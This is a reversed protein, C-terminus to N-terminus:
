FIYRSDGLSDMTIHYEFCLLVLIHKQRKCVRFKIIKHFIGAMIGAMTRETNQIIERFVIRGKM